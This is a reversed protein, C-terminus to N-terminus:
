LSESIALIVVSRVKLEAVEAEVDDVQWASCAFALRGSKVLWRALSRRFPQAPPRFGAAWAHRGNANIWVAVFADVRGHTAEVM